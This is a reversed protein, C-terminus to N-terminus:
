CQYRKKNRQQHHTRLFVGPTALTIRLSLRETTLRAHADCRQGVPARLSM